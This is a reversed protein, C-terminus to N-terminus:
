DSAILFPAPRLTRGKRTDNSVPPAAPGRSPIHSVIDHSHGANGVEIAFRLTPSDLRLLRHLARLFIAVVCTTVSQRDLALRGPVDVLGQIADGPLHNALERTFLDQLQTLARGIVHALDDRGLDSRREPRRFAAATVPTAAGNVMREPILTMVVRWFRIQPSFAM